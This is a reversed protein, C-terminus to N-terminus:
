GAPRPSAAVELSASTRSPRRAAGGADTVLRQLADRAAAYVPAYTGNAVVVVGLGSAPHWRMHSGFGPYGGSHHVTRGWRRFEEFLGFGYGVVEPAPEGPANVGRRRTSNDADRAALRVRPRGRGWWRGAPGHARQMVGVWRALDTVTSFLGGM